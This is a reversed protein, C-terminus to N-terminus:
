QLSDAASPGSPSEHPVGTTASQLDGEFFKGNVNEKRSGSDTSAKRLRRFRPAGGV